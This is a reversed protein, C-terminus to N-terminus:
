CTPRPRPVAGHRRAHAQSILLDGVQDDPPREHDAQQRTRLTLLGVSAFTCGCSTSTSCGSCRRTLPQGCRRGCRGPRRSSAPSTQRLGCILRPAPGAPLSCARRPVQTAPDITQLYRAFGRVIALRQAWHNVTAHAPVPAWAIALETTVTAAGAAKLYAVSQPLVLGAREPKYGLGRRLRLYDDVHDGLGSM